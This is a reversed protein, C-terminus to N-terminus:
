SLEGKDINQNRIPNNRIHHGPDDENVGKKLTKNKEFNIDFDVNEVIV